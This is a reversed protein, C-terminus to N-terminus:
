RSPRARCFNVKNSFLCRYLLCSFSRLMCSRYRCESYCLPARVQYFGVAAGFAFLAAQILREMVHALPLYSLYVDKDCIGIEAVIQSSSDAVLNEHTIMAGKPM